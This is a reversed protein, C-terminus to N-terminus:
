VRERVAGFAEDEGDAGCIYLMYKGGESRDLLACVVSRVRFGRNRAQALAARCLASDVPRKHIYRM